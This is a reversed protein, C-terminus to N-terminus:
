DDKIQLHIARRNMASMPVALVVTFAASTLGRGRSTLEESSCQTGLGRGEGGRGEGGRGEREWAKRLGADCASCTIVNPKPMCARPKVVHVARGRGLEPIVSWAM